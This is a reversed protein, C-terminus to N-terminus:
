SRGFMYVTVAHHGTVAHDTHDTYDIGEPVRVIQTCGKRECSESQNVRSSHCRDGLM